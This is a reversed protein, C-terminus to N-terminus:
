LPNGRASQAKIEALKSPTIGKLTKLVAAAGDFQLHATIRNPIIVCDIGAALSARLGNLSDELVIASSPNIGLAAAAAHFLDPAPKPASVDDICRTVAFRNLLGLRDLHGEVWSRPSSSAVACPIGAKEASDLLGVVGPFPDLLRTRRLAETERAPDWKSWDVSSGTLSELHRRPDYAGFNSGVCAAYTPLDLEHGFARFNERWAEYIPVETDLILGDFDFIIADPM